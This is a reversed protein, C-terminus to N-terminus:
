RRDHSRICSASPQLKQEILHIRDNEALLKSCSTVVDRGHGLPVLEARERIGVDERVVVQETPM